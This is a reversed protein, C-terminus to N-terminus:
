GQAVLNAQDKNVDDLTIKGSFINKAFYRITEFHYFNYIYINIQKM